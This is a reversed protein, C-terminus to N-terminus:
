KAGRKAKCRLMHAWHVWGWSDAVRDRADEIDVKFGSFVRLTQAEVELAVITPEAM